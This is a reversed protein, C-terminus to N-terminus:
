QPPPPFSLTRPVGPPLYSNVKNSYGTRAEPPALLKWTERHFTLTNGNLVFRVPLINNKFPINHGKYDTINM